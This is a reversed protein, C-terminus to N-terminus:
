KNLEELTKNIRTIVSQLFTHTYIVLLEDTNKTDKSINHSLLLLKDEKHVDLNLFLDKGNIKNNSTKFSTISKGNMEIHIEDEKLEVSITKNM